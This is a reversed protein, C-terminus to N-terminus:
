KIVTFHLGAVQITVADKIRRKANKQKQWELSIIEDSNNAYLRGVTDAWRTLASMGSSEEMGMDQGGERDRKRTHHIHVTSLGIGHLKSMNELYGGMSRPESENTILQYMCDFVVVQPKSEEIVADLMQMGSYTDMRLEADNVFDVMGEYEGPMIGHARVYELIRTSAYVEESQEAQVVLVKCKDTEYGLWRGGMALAFALDIALWSKYTEPMGFLLMSGGKILLHPKVLYEPTFSALGLLEVLGRVKLPKM